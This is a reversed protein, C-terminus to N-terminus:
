GWRYGGERKEAPRCPKNLHVVCLKQDCRKCDLVAVRECYDCTDRKRKQQEVPLTRVHTEPDIRMIQNVEIKRITNEWVIDFSKSVNPGPVAGSALTTYVVWMKKPGRAELRELAWDPMNKGRIEWDPNGTYFSPASENFAIVFPRDNLKGIVHANRKRALAKYVSNPKYKRFSPASILNEKGAKRM